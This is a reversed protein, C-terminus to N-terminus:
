SQSFYRAVKREGDRRIWYSDAKRGINRRMPDRGCLRMVWGTPTLIGYYTVGLLINSLVWGLM